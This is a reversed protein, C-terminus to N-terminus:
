QKLLEAHEDPNVLLTSFNVYTVFGTKAGSPKKVNERTTYDVAIKTGNRAQSFFATIEAAKLLVSPPVDRNEAIVAVHGSHVTQTHMWIDKAKAIRFTVQENQTNNKGVYVSFGEIEYLRPTSKIEKSKNKVNNKAAKLLGARRMEEEIEPLESEDAVSLAFSLTKLYEIFESNERVLKENYVLSKKLKNYKKYYQQANQQPSLARNLPIETEPCNEEYFNQAILKDDTKGIRHLNSLILDGFIRYKEGERAELLAQRQIGLKKETRNLANKVITSVSKSKEAFRLAKDKQHYFSDHAENLTDFCLREGDYSVYDFPIVDCPKGKDFIIQPKKSALNDLYRKLASSANKKENRALACLERITRPSLGAVSSAYFDFLEGNFDRAACDILPFEEPYM